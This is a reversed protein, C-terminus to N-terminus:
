VAAVAAKMAAALNAQNTVPGISEVGLGRALAAIDPAPDDIRQGVWRNEVNRGRKEAVKEQHIEDNFYSRNNSIVFLAPIDYKAATWLANISMLTDGDGLIGATLRDSSHLALAAGIVLGPGSGIGGGGDKGLYDLPHHMPWLDFPWGRALAAFTVADDGTAAKLAIAIDRLSLADEDSKKTPSPAAADPRPPHPWDATADLLDAVAADPDGVLEVDIAPLAFHEKGWGNHLVMDQGAHIVIKDPRSSGFAQQLLGGLDIWGISLILDAQQLVDRHSPPLKNFPAGVHLPHDTPVMVGSKLDTMVRAGLREALAVRQTMAADTRAGRGYLIVINKSSKLRDVAAQTAARAPRAALAPLARSFDPLVFGEPNAEEQIAADLCVYVPASPTMNTLKWARGISEPIAEISAPQDDWKVFNRVLAGQDQATHLWDVWPRRLTADVPGTAGLVLMPARDAFANFIAMTGHMLGVNSHLAVAMAKGTVKAYGHAISVAYEEHLCILMQPSENGLYNVLSDHLGRYSAGPNLAIFPIDLRRLMEAVVDSGWGMKADVTGAPQERKINTQSNRATSNKLSMPPHEPAITAFPNLVQHSIPRRTLVSRGYSFRM